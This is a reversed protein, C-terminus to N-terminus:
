SEDSPLYKCLRCNSTDPPTAVILVQGAAQHRLHWTHQLLLHSLLALYETYLALLGGHYAEKPVTEISKGGSGKPEVVSWYDGDAARRWGNPDVGPVYQSTGSLKHMSKTRSMPRQQLTVGRREFRWPFWSYGGLVNRRAVGGAHTLNHAEGNNNGQRRYRGTETKSPSWCQTSSM